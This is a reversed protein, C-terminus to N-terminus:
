AVELAFYVGGCDDGNGDYAVASVSGVGLASAVVSMLDDYDAGQIFDVSRPGSTAPLDSDRLWSWEVDHVVGDTDVTEVSLGWAPASGSEAGSSWALQYRFEYGDAPAPISYTDSKTISM